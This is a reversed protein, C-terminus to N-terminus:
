INASLKPPRFDPLSTRGVQDEDPPTALMEAIVAMTMPAASLLPLCFSCTNAICCTGDHVADADSDCQLKGAAVHGVSAVQHAFSAASAIHEGMPAHFLGAASFTLVLLLVLWRRLSWSVFRQEKRCQWTHTQSM